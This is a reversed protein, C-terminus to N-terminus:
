DYVDDMDLDDVQIEPIDKVSDEDVMSANFDYSDYDYFVGHTAFKKEQELVKKLNAEKRREREIDSAFLSSGLLIACLLIIKM